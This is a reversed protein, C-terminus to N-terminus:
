TLIGKFDPTRPRATVFILKIIELRWFCSGIYVFDNASNKFFFEGLNLLEFLIKIVM